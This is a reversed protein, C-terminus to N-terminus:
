HNNRGSGSGFLRIIDDLNQGGQEFITMLAVVKMEDVSIPEDFMGLSRAIIEEITDSAVIGKQELGHLFGFTDPPILMQEEMSLVRLSRMRYPTALPIPVGPPEPISRFYSELWGFATEIEEQDFGRSALSEQLEQWDEMLDKNNEVLERLIFYLMDLLRSDM